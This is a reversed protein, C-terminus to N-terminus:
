YIVVPEYQSVNEYVAKMVSPPINVCGGSGNNLYAKPAWDTRWSADHLGCGGLTFPAWYDVHVSYNPNGVESGKLTSPSQKYEIYWVGKPTDEHYAHTGTVVHTTMKLKGNKYVWIRQDEISLEVYTNGIGHNGTTHYGVGNINWGEGYINYASISSKGKEFAEQIRKTEADVDIAWGYTEGKVSIIKGSHSKFTYSKHLTSQTHNLQELQKKIPTTDITMSVKLSKTVSAKKVLDSGNITYSKGQLKYDVNRDMLDQLTKKEMEILPSDAKVPQLYIPDLHVVSQNSESQFTSLLSKVDYQKGARSKIVTLHGNDLKVSANQAPKLHQNMSQLTQKLNTEMRGLQQPDLHKPKLPANTTRSDPFFTWQKHLLQKVEALDDNSFGMPTDPGDYIKKNGVYVVNKSVTIKLKNLAQTATLGGVPTQNIRVNSNFHTNQYITLGVLGLILAGVVCSILSMLIKKKSVPEGGSGRQILGDLLM